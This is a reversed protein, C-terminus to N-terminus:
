LLGVYIFFYFVEKNLLDGSTRIQLFPILFIMKILLFVNIYKVGKSTNPTNVM